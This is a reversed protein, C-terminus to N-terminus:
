SLFLTLPYGENLKIHLSVRNLPKMAMIKYDWDCYIAHYIDRNGPVITVEKQTESLWLSVGFDPYQAFPDPLSRPPALYHHVALFIHETSDQTVLFIARVM